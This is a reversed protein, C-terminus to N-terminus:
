EFRHHDSHRNCRGHCAGSRADVTAIAPASSSWVVPRGTLVNGQDDKLPASLTAKRGVAVSPANPTIVVTGVPAPQGGGNNPASPTDGDGWRDTGFLRPAIMPRNDDARTARVM